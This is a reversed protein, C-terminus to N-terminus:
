FRFYQLLMIAIGMLIEFWMINKLYIGGSGVKLYSILRGIGSFLVPLGLFYILSQFESINWSVYILLFGLSFYIGAMFRFLNGLVPIPAVEAPLFSKSGKVLLNAGGFVCILAVLILLIRLTLEM